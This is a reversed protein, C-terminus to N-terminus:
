IRANRWFKGLYSSSVYLQDAKIYRGSINAVSLILMCYFDTSDLPEKYGVSRNTDIMCVAKREQWTGLFGKPFRENGLPLATSTHLQVMVYKEYRRLTVHLFIKLKVAIVHPLICGFGCLPTRRSFNLTV